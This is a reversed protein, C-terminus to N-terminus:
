NIECKGRIRLLHSVIEDNKMLTNYIGCNIIYVHHRGLATYYKKGWILGRWLESDQSLLQTKKKKQRLWLKFIRQVYHRKSRTVPSQLTSVAGWKVVEACAPKSRFEERCLMEELKDNRWSEGHSVDMLRLHEPGKNSDNSYNSEFWIPSPSLCALLICVTTETTWCRDNSFCLQRQRRRLWKFRGAFRNLEM